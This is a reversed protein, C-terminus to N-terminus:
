QAPEHNQPQSTPNNVGIFPRNPMISSSQKKFLDRFKDFSKSYSLGIGQTYPAMKYYTYQYYISNYNSRNFVQASFRGDKTIKYDFNVDGVINTSNSSYTATPIIVGFNTEITLRDDFLQKRMAVTMEENSLDSGPKYNVNIDLDNTFKSIWDNLQSTLLGYNDLNGGFNFSNFALLYIIQTFVTSQNTTDIVNFVAQQMDESANPLRIGFSIDPNMLKNKLHVLCEVKVNSSSMSTTDVLGLSSLSAKTSYVGTANITGNVPDGTWSISSGQELSFNRRIIDQINFSLSGENIVYEGILSLNKSVLGLKINGDGKAEMAGLNNPLSIKIQANRNVNLDLGINLNAAEKAKKANKEEEEAMAEEEEQQVKKDVFTIFEHKSVSNKSGLPITMVTGKSTRARVKLNLDNIPGKVEVIGSAIATGHFSSSNAATTAMALFNRPIMTINLRMDKLHDHSIQGVVTATNGLTDTLSLDNMVILSDNITIFPSFTYFTNLFHIRCGGNNIKVGGNIEPRNLAGRITLSGDGYGQLRDAINGLFPSLLGLSLSDLKLDFDLNDTKKQPYFSGSLDISQHQQNLLGLDLDISARENNWRSFIEADGFPEGNFALQQIDLNAFVTPEAKINSVEANGYVYGDLDFGMGKFLFDLTSLNFQNFSAILTDEVTNPVFGDLKISQQNSVLEVSSLQIKSSDIAIYNEPNVKWLTDNVWIDADYVNFRGGNPLPVFSTRISAKNHDANDSDDWRIDTLISDNRLSALINFDELSIISPDHETSDRLIIEDLHLRTSSRRSSSLSRCEINNIKINNFKLYKSRVSLNLSHSRSTFTGNLSTNKAISLNPVLFQTIPKPDKVNLHVIFDQDCSKGSQEFAELEETWQPITVYSYLYQKFATSLTTFDMKGAMEFELFDCDLLIKKQMLQDNVISADFTNMVFAGSNNEFVLDQIKLSGETMNFNNINKMDATVSATLLAKDDGKILNLKHLDANTINAKFDGGLSQPNSFDFRGLFDLNLIKDDISIKGNFQNKHLNGNMSIEDITNGMLYANYANGDIDLDLDGGKTQRGIVNAELDIHGIINSANTLTGVDLNEAQINGEFVDFNSENRRRHIDAKVNGIESTIRLDALFNEISGSFSGKVTGQGLPALMAPIPITKSSGPIHFETLDQYSYNLRDINITHRGKMFNIPQLALDGEFRTMEGINVKLKNLKLDKIPGKMVGQMKVLDPMDYLAKAFPGLDSIMLESQRIKSDFVASDVFSKFAHYGPYLIHLDLDLRSNPTELALEDLLIGHSSVNVKSNLNKLEFGSLEKAALQHIIATISDGQIFLNEMDLQISDLSLNSYDMLGQATKEPHDKNQNWFRFDLDNIRIRNINIPIPNKNKDKERGSSFVDILFQLNMSDEGEYKTLNAQAHSLEVHDININGHIIDEMIPRVRLEEISILNNSKLDNVYLNDIHITFNPSIYLRGIKVETGTKSSLYGGAIRIAFKQIIPDQIAIFISM